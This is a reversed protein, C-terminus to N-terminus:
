QQIKNRFENLISQIWNLIWSYSVYLILSFISTYFLTTEYKNMARFIEELFGLDHSYTKFFNGFSLGLLLVIGSVFITLFSQATVQRWIEFSSKREFTKLFNRHLWEIFSRFLYTCLVCGWLFIFLQLIESCRISESSLSRPFGKEVGLLFFPLFEYIFSILILLSSVRLLPDIIRFGAASLVAKSVKLRFSEIKLVTRRKM